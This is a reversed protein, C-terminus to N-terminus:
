EMWVETIKLAGSGSGEYTAGFAVYYSGTQSAVDLTVVGNTGVEFMTQAVYNKHGTTKTSIQLWGRTKNVNSTFSEVRMCLKKANSVDITKSTRLISYNTNQGTKNAFIISDTGKTIEGNYWYSTDDSDALVLSGTLDTFEDGRYYLPTGSFWDKWIGNQYTKATRKVWAGNIYQNAHIPYVELANKKLANFKVVSATGTSVWVGGPKFAREIETVRMNSYTATTNASQVGVRISFLTVDDAATFQIRGVTNSVVISNEELANPWLHVAGAAGVCDWEFVYTKGPTCPIIARTFIASCHTFCNNDTATLTITKGTVTKTGNVVDIVSWFDFDLLNPDDKAFQWGDVATSSNIWITNEKPNSPQTTGGVVKFNLPNAGGNGHLFAQGM